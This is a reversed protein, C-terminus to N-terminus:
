LSATPEQAIEEGSYLHHREIYSHVAEPVLFRISRGAARRERLATGSIDLEPADLWVMRAGDVEVAERDTGPRPMVAILARRLVEEARHWSALNAAADAGLILVLEDEPFEGLTDITYTPGRRVIERDDAVLYDIGEVALRTMEWRHLADTVEGGAKQWPAGAPIFSVVELDLQRYAAEGAVLHALHPPDFTGGLIGRRVGRPYAAPM